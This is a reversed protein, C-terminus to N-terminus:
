VRVPASAKKFFPTLAQAVDKPEQFRREPDKAMMRVVLATLEEPVDPRALNLPLADMSHHAQLIECLSTARFPPGGTLLYYLTCGLSYIDARTDARRADNIQEPAIYDPTGLMQGEHTLGGDVAGESKVMALGFDLVKIIARNHQRALMLRSPKIDRHVMGLEHAHQLGLSAQQVFCCANSIPLAGRAKVLKALDLGEVYEIAFVISEGIRMASYATIINPHHLRATNRIEGLFRDLVGSRNVLHSSVFKLVEYRGQLRNKALYFTGMGGQGLERVIEYDPHDALGPPLTSTPPPAKTSSGRDLMSQGALSAVVPRDSGARGQVDCSRELFSDSSMETIRRQCTACGEVHRSVAEASFDDLKGLGYSQLIQDAPHVAATAGM